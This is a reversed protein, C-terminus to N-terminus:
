QTVSPLQRVKISKVTVESGNACFVSVPKNVISYDGEHEYRPQGDVEITEKTPTVMWRITVYRNTPIGGAGPKAQGGGADHDVRLDNRDREWNFIVAEAAYSMRLNTSNTKAEILIEVPPAFTAKTTAADGKVLRVPLGAHANTLQSIYEVFDGTPQQAFSVSAGFALVAFLLLHRPM